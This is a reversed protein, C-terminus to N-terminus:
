KTIQIKAIGKLGIELEEGDIKKLFRYYAEDKYKETEREDGILRKREATMEASLQKIKQRASKIAEPSLNNLKIKKIPERKEVKSFDLLDGKRAKAMPETDFYVYDLLQPTDDSFQRIAKQIQGLVGVPISEELQEVKVGKCTFLAYKKNGGFHSDYTSKCILGNGVLRDICDMAEKCYPGYYIFRWPFGTLTEGNMLRANYLDALYIFKVLRNTTLRFHNETAYWVIYRIINNPNMLFRSLFIKNTKLM